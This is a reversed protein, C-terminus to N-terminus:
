AGTQRKEPRLSQGLFPRSNGIVHHTSGVILPAPGRLVASVKNPYPLLALFHQM